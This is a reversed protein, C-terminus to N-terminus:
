QNVVSELGASSIALEGAHTIQGRAGVLGLEMLEVGLQCGVDDPWGWGKVQGRKIATLANLQAETLTLQIVVLKM